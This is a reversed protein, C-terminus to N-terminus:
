QASEVDIKFKGMDKMFDYISDMDGEALKLHAADMFDMGFTPEYAIWKGVWCEVWAHYGFQGVKQASGEVPADFYVVGVCVKAPIGAARSVAAMLTAYDRCAGKQSEYIAKAQRLMSIQYTPELREHSWKSILLAAKWAVKEDGVVDKALKAFLPDDCNVYQSPALYEKFKTRDIQDIKIDPADAPKTVKVTLQVEYANDGVKRVRTSQVDDDKLVPRKSYGTMTAIMETLSRPNAIPKDLKITSQIMFDKSPQSNEPPIAIEKPERVITINMVTVTKLMDGNKDVWSTADFLESKAEIKLAPCSVGRIDINEEAVVAVSMEILRLSNSDFCVGSIKDGVKPVSVTLGGETPDSMFKQGPKLKLTGTKKDGQLDVTYTLSDKTYTVEVNTESGMSSSHSSEYLPTGDATHYDEGHAESSASQGMMAVKMVMDSKSYEAPQGKYEKDMTIVHMYGLKNDGLYVGYWEDKTEAGFVVACASLILLITIVLKRVM